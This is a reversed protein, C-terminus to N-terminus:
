IHILSLGLLDIAQECAPNLRPLAKLRQRLADPARASHLAQGGEALGRAREVALQCSSCGALHDALETPLTGSLAADLRDLLADCPNM